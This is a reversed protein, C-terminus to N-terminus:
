PWDAMLHDARGCEEGLHVGGEDAGRLGASDVVRLELGRGEVQCVGEDEVGDTLGVSKSGRTLQHLLPLNFSSCTPFLRRQFQAASCDRASQSALPSPQSSNRWRDSSTKLMSVVFGGCIQRHM